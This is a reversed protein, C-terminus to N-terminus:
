SQTSKLYEYKRLLEASYVNGAITNMREFLAMGEVPSYPGEVSDLMRSVTGRVGNQGRLYASAPAQPVLPFSPRALAHGPDYNSYELNPQKTPSYTTLWFNLAILAGAEIGIRPNVLADYAHMGTGPFEGFERMAVIGYPLWANLHLEADKIYLSNYDLPIEMEHAIEPTLLMLDRLPRNVLDNVTEEPLTTKLRSIIGNTHRRMDNYTGARIQSIGIAGMGSIAYPNGVSETSIKALMFDTDVAAKMCTGRLFGELGMSDLRDLTADIEAIDGQTIDYHTRVESEPHANDTSNERLNRIYARIFDARMNTAYRMLTQPDELRGMLYQREPSGGSVIDTLSYPAKSRSLAPIDSYIDYRGEYEFGRSTGAVLLLAAGMVGKAIHHLSARRNM